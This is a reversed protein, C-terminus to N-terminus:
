VPLGPRGGPSECLDQVRVRSKEHTLIIHLSVICFYWTHIISHMCAHLFFIIVVVVVCIMHVNFIVYEM